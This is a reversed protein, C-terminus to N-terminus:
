KLASTTIILESLSLANILDTVITRLKTIDATEIDTIDVENVIIKNQKKSLGVSLSDATASLAYRSDAYAATTFNSDNTLQSVKTPLESRRAYERIDITSCNSTLVHNNDGDPLTIGNQALCIVNDDDRM